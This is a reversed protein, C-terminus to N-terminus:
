YYAAHYLGERSLLLLLLLLRCGATLGRNHPSALSSQLASHQPAVINLEPVNFANEALM